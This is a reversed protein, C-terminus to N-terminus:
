DAAIPMQAIMQIATRPASSKMGHTLYISQIRDEGDIQVVIEAAQPELEVPQRSICFDPGIQSLPISRGAVRLTLRVKASHGTPAPLQM